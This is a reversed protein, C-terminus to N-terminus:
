WFYIKDIYTKHIIEPKGVENSSHQACLRKENWVMWFAFSSIIIAHGVDGYMMSFLFPFSIIAYPAPNLERYSNIGYADVLSQFVQTFKNTRNFTPPMVATDVDLRIMVAQGTDTTMNEAVSGATCGCNRLVNRVRLADAAPMWAEGILIGKINDVDFWNMYHYISKAKQVKCMWSHIHQAIAQLVRHWHNHTKQLVLQLDVIRVDVKAALESRVSRNASITYM